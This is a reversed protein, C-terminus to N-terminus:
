FTHFKFIEFWHKLWILGDDPWWLQRFTGPVKFVLLQSLGILTETKVLAKARKVLWIYWCWTWDSLCHRSTSCIGPNIWELMLWPEHQFVDSSTEIILCVEFQPVFEFMCVLQFRLLFQIIQFFSSHSQTLFNSTFYGCPSSQCSAACHRLKRVTRWMWSDSSHVFRCYHVNSFRFVDWGTLISM